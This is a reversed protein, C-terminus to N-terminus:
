RPADIPLANPQQQLTARVLALIGVVVPQPLFAWAAIVEELEGTSQVEPSLSPSLTKQPIESTKSGVPTAVDPKRNQLGATELEVRSRPKASPNVINASNDPNETTEQSLRRRRCSAV